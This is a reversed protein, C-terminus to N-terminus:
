LNCILFFFWNLKERVITRPPFNIRLHTNLSLYSLNGVHPVFEHNKALFKKDLGILKSVYNAATSM